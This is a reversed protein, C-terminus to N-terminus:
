LTLATEMAPPCKLISRVFILSNRLAILKESLTLADVKPRTDLEFNTGDDGGNRGAPLCAVESM